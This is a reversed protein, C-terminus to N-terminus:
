KIIYCCRAAQYVSVDLHLIVRSIIDLCHYAIGIFAEDVMDIDCIVIVVIGCYHTPSSNGYGIIAIDRRARRCDLYHTLSSGFAFLYENAANRRFRLCLTRSHQRNDVVASDRTLHIGFIACCHFATTDYAIGISIHHVICVFISHRQILFSQACIIKLIDNM